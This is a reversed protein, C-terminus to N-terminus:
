RVCKGYTKRTTSLNIRLNILIELSCSYFFKMVSILIEGDVDRILSRRLSKETMETMMMAAFVPSRASLIASHVAFKKGDSSILTFDATESTGYLSEIQLCFFTARLAESNTRTADRPERNDHTQVEQEFM